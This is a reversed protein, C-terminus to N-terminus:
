SIQLYTYSISVGERKLTDVQPQPDGGNNWGGDTIFVVVGLAQATHRRSNTRFMAVAQKLGSFCNLVNHETVRCIMLVFDIRGTFAVWHGSVLQAEALM